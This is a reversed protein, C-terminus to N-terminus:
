ESGFLADFVDSFIEPDPLVTDPYLVAAAAYAFAVGALIMGRYKKM